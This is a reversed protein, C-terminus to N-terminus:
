KLFTERMSDRANFSSDFYQCIKEEKSNSHLRYFIKFLAIEFVLGMEAVKSFCFNLHLM